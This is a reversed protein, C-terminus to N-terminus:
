ASPSTPRPRPRSRSRSATSPSIRASSTMPPSASIRSLPSAVILEAVRVGPRAALFAGELVPARASSSVHREFDDVAPLHTTRLLPPHAHQCGPKPPVNYAGALGSYTHSRAARESAGVPQASARRWRRGTGAQGGPNGRERDAGRSGANTQQKEAEASSMRRTLYVCVALRYGAFVSSSARAKQGAALQCQAPAPRGPAADVGAREGVRRRPRVVGVSARWRAGHCSAARTAWSAPVGPRALSPSRRAERLKAGVEVPGRSWIDIVYAGESAVVRKTCRGSGQWIM